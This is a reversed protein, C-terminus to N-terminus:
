ARAAARVLKARKAQPEARPEGSGGCPEQLPERKALMNTERICPARPAAHPAVASSAEARAARVRGRQASLLAARRAGPADRRPTAVTGALRCGLTHTPHRM